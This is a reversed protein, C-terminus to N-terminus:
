RWREVQENITKRSLYFGLFVPYIALVGSIVGANIMTRRWLEQDTYEPVPRNINHEKFYRKQWEVADRQMQIQAPATLITIVVGILILVLRAVAWARLLAVAKRSRRLLHIAGVLLVFGVIFTVAAQSMGVARVSPPVNMGGRFEEPLKAGLAMFACVGVQCLLGGLAYILSVVGIVVPWKAPDPEPELAQAETPPHIPNMEVDSLM